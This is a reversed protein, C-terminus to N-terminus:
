PWTLSVRSRYPSAVWDGGLLLQGVLSPVIVLALGTVAEAVTAFLLVKKMAEVVGANRETRDDVDPQLGGFRKADIM